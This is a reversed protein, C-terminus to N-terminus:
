KIHMPSLQMDKRQPHPLHFTIALTFDSYGLERDEKPTKKGTIKEGLFSIIKITSGAHRYRTYMTYSQLMIALVFIIDQHSSYSALSPVSISLHTARLMVYLYM